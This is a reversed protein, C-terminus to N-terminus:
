RARWMRDRIVAPPEPAAQPVESLVPGGSVGVLAVEQGLRGCYWGVISGNCSPKAREKRLCRLCITELVRPTKPNLRRAPVPEDSMVQML